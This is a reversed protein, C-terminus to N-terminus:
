HRQSVEPDISPFAKAANLYKKIYEMFSHILPFDARSRPWLFRRLLVDGPPHTGVGCTWFHDWHVAKERCNPCCTAENWKAWVRSSQISGTALLMALTDRRIWKRVLSLRDYNYPPLDHGELEHRSSHALKDYHLRRISERIEHSIRRWTFHDMCEKMEFSFHGKSWTSGALTWGFRSLGHYVMHDLNCDVMEVGNKVLAQNRKSLLRLQRLLVREQLDMHVMLLMRKLQPFGYHFRGAAKFITQYLENRHQDCPSDVIWGYSYAGHVFQFVDDLRKWRAEPLTGIRRILSISKQIREDQKANRGGLVSGKGIIAGLVEMTDGYGDVPLAVSVKQAKQQNEILHRRDSFSQWANIAAEIMDPREAIVTRDDMYIGQTFDGGLSALVAQVEHFGPWLVFALIIPSAGDGQPIGTSAVIPQELMYGNSGVWKKAGSWQRLLLRCWRRLGVPLCGCLSDQVLRLDVTDFCSTYDLTCGYGMKELQHALYSALAEAGLGGKHSASIAEPLTARIFTQFGELLIWSSSWARWIISFISLPRFYSSPGCGHEFKKGGKPIFLLSVDHLSSPTCGTEEWQRMEKLLLATLFRNKGIAASEEATWGDIGPCGSVAKLAASLTEVDPRGIDDTYQGIQTEYFVIMESVALQREADTWEVQRILRFWADRFGLVMERKDRSVGGDVCLAVNQKCKKPNIWSGKVKPDQLGAKWAAIHQAKMAAELTAIQSELRSIQQEAEALNVRQKFIKDHLRWHDDDNRGRRIQLALEKVSGLRNRLKRIQIKCPGGTRPLSRSVLVNTGRIHNQNFLEEVRKIEQHDEFDLPIQLLARYAAQQFVWVIKRSCLEWSYDIMDQELQQTNIQSLSPDQSLDGWCDPKPYCLDSPCTGGGMASSTENRQFIWKPSHNISFSIAQWNERVGDLVADQICNDWQKGSLWRPKSFSPFCKFRQQKTETWDLCAELVVIKHDSIKAHHAWSQAEIRDSVMFFDLVRDSDWRTSSTNPPIFNLGYLSTPVSIWSHEWLENFDGGVIVAGKWNLKLLLEELYAAQEQQWHDGFEPAAYSNIILTQHVEIALLAGKSHGLLELFSAKLSDMVVTLVGKPVGRSLYAGHVGSFVKYGLKGWFREISPVQQPELKAEQILFVAPRDHHNCGEVFHMLQWLGKFTGVNITWLSLSDLKGHM